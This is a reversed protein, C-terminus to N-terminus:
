LVLLSMLRQFENELIEFDPLFKNDTVILAPHSPSIRIGASKVASLWRYKEETPLDKYPVDSCKFLSSQRELFDVDTGPFLSNIKEKNLVIEGKFWKQRKCMMILGINIFEGREPKPMYRVVAYEYLWKDPAEEM